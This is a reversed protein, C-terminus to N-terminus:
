ALLDDIEIQLRTRTRGRVPTTEAGQRVLFLQPIGRVAFKDRLAVNEDANVKAIKLRGEYEAALAELAPMLALCPGCWPAWFDVIVPVTSNLVEQEYTAETVEVILNSMAPEKVIV